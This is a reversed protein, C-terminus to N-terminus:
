DLIQFDDFPRLFVLAINTSAGFEHKATNVSLVLLCYKGFQASDNLLPDIYGFLVIFWQRWAHSAFAIRPLEIKTQLLRQM